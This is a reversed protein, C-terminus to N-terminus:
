CKNGNLDNEAEELASSVYGENERAQRVVNNYGEEFLHAHTYDM